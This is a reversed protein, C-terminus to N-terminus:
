PTAAKPYWWACTERPPRASIVARAHARAANWQYWPEPQQLDKALVRLACSRQPEPLQDLADVADASLHSLFYEDLPYADFLRDIHSRAMQAEPNVAALALLAVVASAVATRPFWTARLRIGALGLLVFVVGFWAIITFAMLRPLTFGYAGAYLALRRLASAVVILTLGCLVGALTRLLIRDVPTRPRVWVAVAAIVALTLLAVLGLQASGDRAYVAYDPGGPGLVYEDGAFLVSLQVWVFIGFLVDLMGIPIAWLALGAQPLDLERVTPGDPSRGGGSTVTRLRLAGLTVACGVAFGIVARVLTWISVSDRWKRLLDAFAPEASSFLAGFMLLLVVGAVLGAIVQAMRGVQATRRQSGPHGTRRAAATGGLARVAAPLLAFGARVLDVSTRGGTLAYSALPAGVILCLAALWGASRIAPVAVLLLAMLGAAVRWGRDGIDVTTSRVAHGPRAARRAVVLAALPGLAAVAWGIGVGTVPLSAAGLLGAVLVAIDSRRDAPAPV